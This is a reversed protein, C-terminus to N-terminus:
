TYYFTCLCLKYMGERVKDPVPEKEFVSGSTKTDTIVMNYLRAKKNKYLGDPFPSVFTPKQCM